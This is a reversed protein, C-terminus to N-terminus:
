GNLDIPLSGPSSVPSPPVSRCRPATRRAPVPDLGGPHLPQCRLIRWLGLWAGRLAGHTRIAEATYHSCTPHFRCGCGPGMLLPLVPSLTVQYVRIGGLLVGSPAQRLWRGLSLFFSPSRSTM